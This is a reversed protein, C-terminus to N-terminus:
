GTPARDRNASISVRTGPKTWRTGGAPDTDDGTLGLKDDYYPLRNRESHSSVIKHLHEESGDKSRISAPRNVTSGAPMAGAYQLEISEGADDDISRLRNESTVKVEKTIFIQFGTSQLVPWFVPVTACVVAMDIEVAALVFSECGYWSPDFTPYTAAKHQIITVLRWVCVLNARCSLM